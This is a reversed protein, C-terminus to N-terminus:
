GRGLRGRLSRAVRERDSGDALLYRLLAALTKADNIEGREIMAIVTDFGLEHMEIQEAPGRGITGPELDTAVYLRILEDTFGPATLVTGLAELTAARYGTEEELERAACAAPDEGADLRGAPIEWLWARIPHRYQRLLLVTAPDLLPLVAAAGPHYLVEFRARHGNDLLVDEVCFRGIKGESLVREAM